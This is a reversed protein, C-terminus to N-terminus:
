QILPNIATTGHLYGPITMMANFFLSNPGFRDRVTQGTEYRRYGRYRLFAVRSASKINKDINKLEKHLGSVVLGLHDNDEAVELKEGYLQWINNDKYFQMDHKSGTITVKTKNAGFILRYRRGYHGVINVLGQLGRPSGSM